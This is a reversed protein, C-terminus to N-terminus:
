VRERCSARGIQWAGPKQHAISTLRGAEDYGYATEVGNRLTVTLPRNAADYTYTVVKSAGDWVYTLRGADDYGYTATEGTPYLTQTRLNRADYRYGVPGAYPATITLPRYLDDYQYLTVGATDTMATRHGVRDYAFQVSADAYQVATLRDLADYTLHAVLQQADTIVTTNGM